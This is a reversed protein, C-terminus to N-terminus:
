SQHKDSIEVLTQALSFHPQYQSIQRIKMRGGTCEGPYPSQIQRVM